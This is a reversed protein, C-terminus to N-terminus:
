ILSMLLKLVFDAGWFFGASVVFAIVYVAALKGIIDCMDKFFKKIWEKM